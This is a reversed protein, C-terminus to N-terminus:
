SGFIPVRQLLLIHELSFFTQRRAIAFLESCLSTQCELHRLKKEFVKRIYQTLAYHNPCFPSVQLSHSHPIERRTFLCISITPVLHADGHSAAIYSGCVHLNLRRGEVVHQFCPGGGRRLGHAPSRPLRPRPFLPQIVPFHNLRGTVHRDRHLVSITRKAGRHAASIRLVVRQLGRESAVPIDVEDLVLIAISGLELDMWFYLPATGMESAQLRHQTHVGGGLLLIM